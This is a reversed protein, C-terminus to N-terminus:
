IRLKIGRYKLDYSYTEGYKVGVELARPIIKDYTIISIIAIVITLISSFPESRTLFENILPMYVLYLVLIALSYTFLTWVSVNYGFFDIDSPPPGSETIRNESDRTSSLYRERIVDYRYRRGKIYYFILSLTFAFSKCILSLLRRTFFIRFRTLAGKPTRWDSIHIKFVRDYIDRLDIPVFKNKYKRFTKGSDTSIYFDEGTDVEVPKMRKARSDKLMYKVRGNESVETTHSVDVELPVYKSNEILKDPYFVFRFFPRLKVTDDIGMQKRYWSPYDDVLSYGHGDSFEVYQKGTFSNTFDRKFTKIWSSDTPM